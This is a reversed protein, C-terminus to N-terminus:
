DIGAIAQNIADINAGLDMGDSGASKYPSSPLLHYDGGSGGNFDVFQISATEM